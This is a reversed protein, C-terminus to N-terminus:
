AQDVREASGVPSPLCPEIIGLRKIPVRAWLTSDKAGAPRGVGGCDALISDQHIWRCPAQGLAGLPYISGKAVQSDRFPKGNSEPYFLGTPAPAATATPRPPPPKPKAPPIPKLIDMGLM